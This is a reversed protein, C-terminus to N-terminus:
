WKAWVAKATNGSPHLSVIKQDAVTVLMLDAHSRVAKAKGLSGNYWVARAVNGSPHLQTITGDALTVYFFGKHQAVHVAKGKFWKPGGEPSAVQFASAKKVKGSTGGAGLGGRDLRAINGDSTVVLFSTGAPTLQIAKGKSGDYWTANAVNGSPHLKVIKGNELTVFVFTITGNNGTSALVNTAKGVSGTYWKANAVNGSAHFTAINGGEVVVFTKSGARSLALACGLQGDYWTSKATNGSKHHDAINCKQRVLIEAQVEPTALMFALGLVSIVFPRM